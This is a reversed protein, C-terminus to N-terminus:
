EAALREKWNKGEMEQCLSERGVKHVKLFLSLETPTAPLHSPVPSDIPAHSICGPGSRLPFSISRRWCGDSGHASKCIAGLM